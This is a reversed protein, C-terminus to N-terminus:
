LIIRKYTLYDEGFNVLLGLRHKSIALYKLTQKLNSSTIKEIAKIELIIKNYIVFDAFYKRPLKYNKYNIDYGKEREFHINNLKFEIELADKYVAESYGKGLVKHVEM